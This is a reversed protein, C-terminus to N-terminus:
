FPPPPPNEPDYYTVIITGLSMSTNTTLVAAPVPISAYGAGTDQGYRILNFVVPLFAPYNEGATATSVRFDYPPTVYLNLPTTIGSPLSLSFNGDADSTATTEYQYGPTGMSVTVGPVGTVQDQSSVVKGSIVITGPPPPPPPSDGGNGGGGGGCGAVMLTALVGGILLISSLRGM